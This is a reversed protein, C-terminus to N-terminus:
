AYNVDKCKEGQIAWGEGELNKKKISDKIKKLSIENRDRM